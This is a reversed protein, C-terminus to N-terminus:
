RNPAGTRPASGTAGSDRGTDSAYRFSPANQLQEKTLSVVAHDPYERPGSATTAAGGTTGTTGTGSATRAPEMRFQLASFPIAVDKAGIGLFGGVGIVVAEVKGDKGLLIESIDGVKDNNAGYVDLGIMKDARWQDSQQQAMFNVSGASPTQSQMGPSPTAAPPSSPQTAAPPSAQGPQPQTTQAIASGAVLVAAIALASTLTRM